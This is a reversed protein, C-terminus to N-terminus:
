ETCCFRRHDIYEAKMEELYAMLADHDKPIYGPGTCGCSFFRIGTIYLEKVHKWAKINKQKSAEFDKGIIFMENGCHPCIVPDDKRNKTYEGEM